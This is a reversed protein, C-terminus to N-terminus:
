ELRRTVLIRRSVLKLFFLYM